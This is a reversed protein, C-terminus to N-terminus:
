LNFAGLSIRPVNFKAAADEAAVNMAAVLYRLHRDTAQSRAFYKSRDGLAEFYRGFRTEQVIAASNGCVSM